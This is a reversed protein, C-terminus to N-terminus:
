IAYPLSAKIGLWGPPQSDAEASVEDARTAHTADAPFGRGIPRYGPREARSREVVTEWLDSSQGDIQLTGIIDLFDHGAVIERGVQQHDTPAFVKLFGPFSPPDYCPNVMSSLFSDAKSLKAWASRSAM